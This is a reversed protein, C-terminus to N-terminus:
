EEREVITAAVIQVILAITTLTTAPTVAGTVQDIENPFLDRTMPIDQQNAM